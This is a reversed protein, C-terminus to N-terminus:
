RNKKTMLIGIVRQASVGGDKIFAQLDVIDTGSVQRVSFITKPDTKDSVPSIEFKRSLEAVKVM